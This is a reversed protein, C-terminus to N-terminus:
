AMTKLVITLSLFWKSHGNFIEAASARSKALQRRQPLKHVELVISKGTPNISRCHEDTGPKIAPGGAASSVFGEPCRCSYSGPFSGIICQTRHPCKNQLECASGHTRLTKLTFFLTGKIPGVGYLEIGMCPRKNYSLPNFSVYRYATDLGIFLESALRGSRQFIDSGGPGSIFKWKRGDISVSM